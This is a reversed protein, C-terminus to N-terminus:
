KCCSLKRRRNKQNNLSVNMKAKEEEIKPMCDRLWYWAITNFLQHINKGSKASVEIYKKCELQKALKHGDRTKVARQSELDSKTGVLFTICDDTAQKFLSSHWEKISNFSVKNTIDFTLIAVQTGRYYATTITKFREQGAKM